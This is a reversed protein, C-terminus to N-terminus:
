SSGLWWWLLFCICFSIAAGLILKNKMKRRKITHMLTNISMYKASTDKLRNFNRQLIRQGELLKAKTDRAQNAITESTQISDRWSSHENLLIEVDSKNTNDNRSINSMLEERSYRHDIGEKLKRYMQKQDSLVERHHQVSHKKLGSSSMKININSLEDLLDKIEAVSNKVIEYPDGDHNAPFSQILYEIRRELTRSRNELRDADIGNLIPSEHHQDDRPSFETSKNM